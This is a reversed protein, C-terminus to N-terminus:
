CGARSEGLIDCLQDELPAGVSHHPTFHSGACPSARKDSRQQEFFHSPQLVSGLFHGEM